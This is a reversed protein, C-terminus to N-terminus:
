LVGGVGRPGGQFGLCLGVAPDYSPAIEKSRPVGTPAM